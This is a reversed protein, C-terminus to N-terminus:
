EDPNVPLSDAKAALLLMVRFPLNARLTRVSGDGLCVNAVGSHFAYIEGQNWCNITCANPVEAADRVKSPPTGPTAPPVTGACVVDNGSHAWAGNMFNPQPTYRNGFAWGEPRAAQEAIMLTNSQGDLIDSLKTGQNSTLIGRCGDTGPFTVGAATWVAQINNSRTVAMYDATKPEWGTGYRTQEAASLSGIDVRHSTSTSPCEFLPIRTSAAPRNSVAYWNQRYDYPIGGQKLVNDQEIFPLIISLFSHKAYHEGNAGSTGVILYTGRLREAQAIAVGTLPGDFFQVSAPPLASFATEYNLIALGLQKLNNSCKMRNAAERVKQVAPLLLGILVAIIAIVVLLEILTFARRRNKHPRNM